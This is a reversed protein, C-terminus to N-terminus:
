FNYILGLSISSADKGKVSSLKSDHGGSAVPFSAEDDNSTMAYVGYLTLDKGFKRDLGIAMLSAGSDKTDNDNAVYYQGRLRYESNLDYYAGVGMTSRKGAKASSAVSDADQYFGAVRFGKFIDYTLGVRTATIDEDAVVNSQVEYAVSAYLGNASYTLAASTASEGDKLNATSRNGADNHATHQVDFNLGNFKPSTYGVSNKFREDFKVGGERTINRADGVRDGFMDTKSRVKKTPTDFQGIRVMGFDGKLGAFTDRSAWSGSGEDIRIGSEIQMMVTLGETVEHKGSIRVRSSNSSANLDSAAGNDFHDVSVHARGSIKLEASMAPVTAATLAAGISLALLKKKM